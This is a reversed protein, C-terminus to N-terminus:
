TTAMMLYVYATAAEAPTAGRPLPLNGVYAEVTEAPMTQRVHETLVLGPVRRRRAAAGLDAALARALFEM